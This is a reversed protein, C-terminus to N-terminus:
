GIYNLLKMLLIIVGSSIQTSRYLTIDNIKEYSYRNEM